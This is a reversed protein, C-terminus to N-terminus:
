SMGSETTSRGVSGTPSGHDSSESSRARRNGFSHAFYPSLQARAMLAGPPQAAIKAALMMARAQLLRSPSHAFPRHREGDQTRGPSHFALKWWRVTVLWRHRVLPARRCGLQSAGADHRVGKKLDNPWTSRIFRLTSHVIGTKGTLLKPLLM